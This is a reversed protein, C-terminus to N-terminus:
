SLLMFRSVPRQERTSVLSLENHTWNGVDQILHDNINIFGRKVNM